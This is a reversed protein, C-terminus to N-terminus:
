GPPSSPCCKTWANTTIARSFAKSPPVSFSCITCSDLVQGVVGGRQVIGLPHPEEWTNRAHQQIRMYPDVSFYKAQVLVEDIALDSPISAERLEYHESSVRGQPRKKYIWQLNATSTTQMPTYTILLVIENVQYSVGYGRMTARCTIENRTAVLSTTSRLFEQKNLFSM